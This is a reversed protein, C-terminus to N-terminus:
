SVLGRDEIIQALTLGTAAIRQSEQSSASPRAPPHAPAAPTPVASWAITPQPSPTPAPPMTPPAPPAALAAFIRELVTREEPLTAEAPLTERLGTDQEQVARYAFLRRCDPHDLGARVALLAACTSLVETRFVDLALDFRGAAEHRSLREQYFARLVAQTIAPAQRVATLRELDPLGLLERWAQFNALLEVRLGLRNAETIEETLALAALQREAEARDMSRLALYLERLSGRAPTKEEPAFTPARELLTVLRGLADLVASIHGADGPVEFRVSQLWFVGRLRAEFPEDPDLEHLPGPFWAHSPGVFALLQERLELLARPSQALGLGALGAGAPLLLVAARAGGALRALFRENLAHVEDLLPLAAATFLERVRQELSPNPTM